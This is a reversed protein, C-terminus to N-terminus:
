EAILKAISSKRMSITSTVTTLAVILMFLLPLILYAVAPNVVFQIKSAGM